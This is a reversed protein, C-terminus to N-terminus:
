IMYLGVYLVYYHGRYIMDFIIFVLMYMYYM